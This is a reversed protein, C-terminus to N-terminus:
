RRPTVDHVIPPQAFLYDAIAELDADTMYKLGEQITARM